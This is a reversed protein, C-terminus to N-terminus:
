WIVKAARQSTVFVIVTLSSNGPKLLTLKVLNDDICRREAEM